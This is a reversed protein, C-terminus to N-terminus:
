YLGHRGERRTIQDQLAQLGAKHQEKLSTIDKEMKDHIQGFANENKKALKGQEKL